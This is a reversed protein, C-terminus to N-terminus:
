QKRTALLGAIFVSITIVIGTYLFGEYPFIFFERSRIYATAYQLGVVMLFLSSIYLTGVYAHWRSWSKFLRVLIFVAIFVLFINVVLMPLSTILLWWKDAVGLSKLMEFTAMHIQSNQADSIISKAIVEGWVSSAMACSAVGSALLFSSFPTHRFNLEGAFFHKSLYAIVYYILTFIFMVTFINMVMFVNDLSCCMKISMTLLAFGSMLFSYTAITFFCYQVWAKRFWAGVSAIVLLGITIVASSYQMITNARLLGKSAYAILVLSIVIIFLSQRKYSQIINKM